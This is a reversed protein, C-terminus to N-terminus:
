EGERGVLVSVEFRNELGSCFESLFDTAQQGLVIAVNSQILELTEVRLFKTSGNVWLHSLVQLLPKRVLGEEYGVQRAVLPQDPSGRAVRAASM